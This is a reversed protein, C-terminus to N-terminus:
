KDIKYRKMTNKASKVMLGSKNRKGQVGEISERLREQKKRDREEQKQMLDYGRKDELYKPFFLLYARWIKELQKRAEQNRNRLWGIFLSKIQQSDISPFARCIPNLYPIFTSYPLGGDIQRALSKYRGFYMVIFARRQFPTLTKRISKYYRRIASDIVQNDAEVARRLLARGEKKINLERNLNQSWKDRRQKKHRNKIQPKMEAYKSVNKEDNLFQIWEMLFKGEFARYNPPAVAAPPEAICKIFLSPTDLKLDSHDKTMNLIRDLYTQGSIGRLVERISRKSLRTQRIVKQTRFFGNITALLFCRQFKPNPNNSFRELEQIVLQELSSPKLVIPLTNEKKKM